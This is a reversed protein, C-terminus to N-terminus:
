RDGGSGSDKGFKRCSSHGSCGQVMRIDVIGGTAVTVVVESGHRDGGCANGSDRRDSRRGGLVGFM